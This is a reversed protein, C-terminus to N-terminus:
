RLAEVITTINARMMNLYTDADPDDTSLSGTYLSSVIAIDAEEALRNALRDSTTNEVFIAPVEQAKIVDVLDVLDKASTEEATSLGPILTGIVKFGYRAAFYGLTDHSTVLVRREPPVTDLIGQAWDHLEDVEGLYAIANDRYAVTGAPDLATLTLAIEAVALKVRMPDFWFHPDEVDGSQSGISIPDTADGLAVVAGSGSSATDLLDRLWREELGLGISFVVDADAVRTVDRAGPQFAHPDAGSPVLSFVEVRNGGVRQVWDQTINNTTVVAVAADNSGQNSSGCAAAAIAITALVVLMLIKVM